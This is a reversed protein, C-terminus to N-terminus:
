SKVRKEQCRIGSVQEQEQYSIVAQGTLNKASFSGALNFKHWHCCPTNLLPTVSKVPSLRYSKVM